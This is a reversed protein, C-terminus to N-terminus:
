VIYFLRRAVFDSGFIPYSELALNRCRVPVILVWRGSLSYIKTNYSCLGSVLTRSKLPTMLVRITESRMSYLIATVKRAVIDSYEEKRCGVVRVRHGQLVPYFCSLAHFM